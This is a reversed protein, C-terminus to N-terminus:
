PEFRSSWNRGGGVGYAQSMTEVVEVFAAESDLTEVSGGEAPGKRVSFEGEAQAPCSM